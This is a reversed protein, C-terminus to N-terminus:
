RRQVLKRMSPAVFLGLLAANGLLLLIGTGILSWKNEAMWQTVGVKAKQQCEQSVEELRQQVYPDRLIQRGLGQAAGGAAQGLWSGAQEFPSVAGWSPTGDYGPADAISPSSDFPAYEPSSYGSGYGPAYSQM